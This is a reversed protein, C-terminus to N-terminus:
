KCMAESFETFFYLMLCFSCVFLDKFASGILIPLFSCPLALNSLFIIFVQLYIARKDSLMKNLTNEDVQDGNTFVLIMHDAINDGFFMRISEVTNVDEQSFRTTASFVMLMAHIGDKSLDMCKAIEKQADEVKTNMDFLGIDLLTSHVLKIDLLLVCICCQLLICM